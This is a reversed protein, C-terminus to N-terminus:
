QKVITIRGDMTGSVAKGASHLEAIYEVMLDRITVNSKIEMDSGKGLTYLKDNGQSLFDSTAIRYKREPSVPKGGVTASALQRDATITLRAGSIAEGGVAAIEGFLQMLQTGDLTLFALTNDFPFVNYVDGYTVIGQPIINRLGGKNTIAIDVRKNSHRQAMELLADAAFNMLPSEPPYASMEMASTGIVPAKISDTKARYKEVIARVAQAGDENNQRVVKINTAEIGTLRKESGNCSAFVAVATIYFLLTTRRM